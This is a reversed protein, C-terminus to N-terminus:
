EADSRRVGEEIEDFYKGDSARIARQRTFAQWRRVTTDVYLPYIELGYCRRGTREAAIVMTGSGLFADLM